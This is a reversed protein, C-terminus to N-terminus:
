TDPRNKESRANTVEWFRRVDWHAPADGLWPIGSPRYDPYPRLNSIM